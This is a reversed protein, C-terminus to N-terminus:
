HIMRIFGTFYPGRPKTHLGVQNGERSGEGNTNGSVSGLYESDVRYIFGTHGKGDPKLHIFIDGVEPESFKYEDPTRDWLKAVSGTKPVWLVGARHACWVASAACWAHQGEPDLGVFKLCTDVWPGRNRSTERVGLYSMMVDVPRATPSIMGPAFTTGTKPM